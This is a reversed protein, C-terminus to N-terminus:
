EHHSQEEFNHTQAGLAQRLGRKKPLHINFKVLTGEAHRVKIPQFRWSTGLDSEEM